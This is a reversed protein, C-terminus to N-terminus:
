DMKGNWTVFIVCEDVVCSDAHLQGAPQSWYGGPSLPTALAADSGEPWHKAIGQIVVAQYDSSHRHMGGGDRGYKMLMQSPGKAPDGSLLAFGAGKPQKPDFPVFKAKDFPTVHLRPAGDALASAGLALCAVLIPVIRSSPTM